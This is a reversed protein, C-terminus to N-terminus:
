EGDGLYLKDLNLQKIGDLKSSFESRLSKLETLVNAINAMNSAEINEFPSTTKERKVLKYQSRELFDCM